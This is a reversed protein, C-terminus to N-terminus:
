KQGLLKGFIKFTKMNKKTKQKLNKRFTTKHVCLYNKNYIQSWTKKVTKKLYNKKNEVIFDLIGLFM